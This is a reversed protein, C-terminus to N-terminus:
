LLTSKFNDDDSTSYLYGENVLYEVAERVQPETFRGSGQQVVKNVHVGQDSTSLPGDFIALM